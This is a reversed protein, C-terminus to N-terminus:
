SADYVRNMKRSCTTPTKRVFSVESPVVKLPLSTVDMYLADASMSIGKTRMTTGRDKLLSVQENAEHDKRVEFGDYIMDSVDAERKLETTLVFGSATPQRPKVEVVSVTM